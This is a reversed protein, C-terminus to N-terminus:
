QYDAYEILTIPANPDGLAREEALSRELVTSTVTVTAANEPPTPSTTVSATQQSSFASCGSLLLLWFMLFLPVQQENRM